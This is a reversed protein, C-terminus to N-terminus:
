PLCISSFIQQNHATDSQNKDVYVTLCCHYTPSDGHLRDDGEGGDLSDNGYGGHLTDNGAGGSLTDNGM